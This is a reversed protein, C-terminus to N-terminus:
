DKSSVHYFKYPCFQVISSTNQTHAPAQYYLLKMAAQFIPKVQWQQSYQWCVNPVIEIHEFHKWNNNVDGLEKPFQRIGDLEM